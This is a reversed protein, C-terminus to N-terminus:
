PAAFPPTWPARSDTDEEDSTPALPILTKRLTAKADLTLEIRSM